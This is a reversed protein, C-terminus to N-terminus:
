GALHLWWHTKNVSYVPRYHRVAGDPVVDEVQNDLMLREGDIEVILVAHMARLNLDRLVVIRMQDNRFGAAKLAMFKAIAYDECDDSEKWLFELPTAWYDEIGWNIIDLVYPYANLTRQVHNLAERPALGSLSEIFAKWEPRECHSASLRACGDLPTNMERGFRTLTGRWQAFASLDDSRIARTGFAHDAGSTAVAARAEGPLPLGGPVLGFSGFLAFLAVLGFVASRGFGPGSPASGQDRIRRRPARGFPFPPIMNMVRNGHYPEM